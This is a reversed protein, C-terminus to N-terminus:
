ISAKDLKQQIRILKIQRDSEVSVGLLDIADQWAAEAKDEESLANYQKLVAAADEDALTTRVESDEDEFQLQLLDAPETAILDRQTKKAAAAISMGSASRVISPLGRM